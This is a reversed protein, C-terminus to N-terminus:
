LKKNRYNKNHNRMSFKDISFRLYIFFRTNKKFRIKKLTKFEIILPMEKSFDFYESLFLSKYINATIIGKNTKIVVGHVSFVKPIGQKIFTDFSDKKKSHNKPLPM